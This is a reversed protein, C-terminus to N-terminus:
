ALVSVLANFVSKKRIKYRGNEGILLDNRIMEELKEDFNEIKQAKLEGYSLFRNMDYKGLKEDYSLRLFAHLIDKFRELNLNEYLKKTKEKCFVELSKFDKANKEYEQLMEYDLDLIELCENVQNEEIIDISGNLKNNIEEVIEFVRENKLALEETEIIKMLFGDNKLDESVIGSNTLIVVNVSRKEYFYALLGCIECSEGLSGQFNDVIIYPVKDNKNLKELLDDLVYFNDLKLRDLFRNLSIPVGECDVYLSPVGKKQMENIFNLIESTKGIKGSSYMVLFRPYGGFHASINLGKTNIQPVIITEPLEYFTRELSKSSFRQTDNTLNLLPLTKSIPSRKSENVIAVFSFVVLIM